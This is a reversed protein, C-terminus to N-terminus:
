NENSFSIRTESKNIQLFLDMLMKRTQESFQKSQKRKASSENTLSAEFAVCVLGRRFDNPLSVSAPSRLADYSYSIM